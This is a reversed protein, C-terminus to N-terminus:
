SVAVATHMLPTSTQGNADEPPPPTGGGPDDLNTLIVDYICCKRSKCSVSHMEITRTAKRVVAGEPLNQSTEDRKYILYLRPISM